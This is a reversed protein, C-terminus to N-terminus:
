MEYVEDVRVSFSKPSMSADAVINWLKFDSCLKREEVTLMKRFKIKLSVDKGPMRQIGHYKRVDIREDVRNSLEQMEDYLNKNRFGKNSFGITQCKKILNNVERALKGARKRDSSVGVFEVSSGEYPYRHNISVLFM